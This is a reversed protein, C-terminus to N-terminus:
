VKELVIQRGSAFINPFLRILIKDVINLLKLFFNNMPLFFTKSTVGGSNFFILFEVLKEHKIKFLNGLHKNFNKKDDFILNSVAINGAWLDEEDSKPNKEDWVNVTFDFGEHKMITTALQLLVSCYPEFIILKGNKKLIRNMERFFKIPYPIHHIM